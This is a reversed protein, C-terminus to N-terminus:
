FYVRGSQNKDALEEQVRNAGPWNSFVCFNWDGKINEIKKSFTKCYRPLWVFGM